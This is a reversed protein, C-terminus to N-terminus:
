PVWVLGTGSDVLLSNDTLPSLAASAIDARVLAGLSNSNQVIMAIGTGDPSWAIGGMRPGDILPKTPRTLDTGVPAVYLQTSDLPTIRGDANDDHTAVTYALRNGDPSWGMAGGVVQNAGGTLPVAVAENARVVWLVPVDDMSIFGDNNTDTTVGRFALMTGNPNWLVTPYDIGASVINVVGTSLDAVALQLADAQTIRGNADNDSRHLFAIHFSDPSWIPTGADVSGPPSAQRQNVGNVDTIWLTRPDGVDYGNRNTDVQRVYGISAGNPSWRPSSVRVTGDTLPFVGGTRTDLLYLRNVGFFSQTFLVRTGDASLSLSTDDINAGTFQVLLGTRADVLSISRNPLGAAQTLIILRGGDPTYASDIVKERSILRNLSHLLGNRDLYFTVTGDRRILPVQADQQTISTTRIAGDPGNDLKFLSHVDTDALVVGDHNSDWWAGFIISGTIPVAQAHFAAPLSLILCLVSLTFLRRKM